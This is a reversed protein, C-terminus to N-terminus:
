NSECINNVCQCGTPIVSNICTEYDKSLACMPEMKDIESNENVCTFKKDCELCTDKEEKIVCDSDTECYYDEIVISDLFKALELDINKRDKSKFMVGYNFKAVRFKYSVIPLATDSSPINKLSRIVNGIFVEERGYNIKGEVPHVSGGKDGAWFIIDGGFISNRSGDGVIECGELKTRSLTIVGEGYIPSDTPCKEKYESYEYLYWDKPYKFSYNYKENKYVALDNEKQESINDLDKKEKVLNKDETIVVEKKNQSKKSEDKVKQEDLVDKQVQQGCGALVFILGFLILIKKM